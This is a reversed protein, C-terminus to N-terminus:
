TTSAVAAGPGGGPQLWFYAIVKIGNAAATDFLPKSTADTGWTRITNVGMSKVDPMYKAADAVSPGWTLGKVTYPSGDVTLQWNGQSGTVKVVNYAAQAAPAQVALLGGGLLAAAALPAVLRKARRTPPHHM